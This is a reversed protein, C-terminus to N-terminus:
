YSLDGPLTNQFSAFLTLLTLFEFYLIILKRTQVTPPILIYFIYVYLSLSLVCKTSQLHSLYEAFKQLVAHQTKLNDCRECMTRDKRIQQRPAVTVGLFCLLVKIRIKHGNTSIYSSLYLIFKYQKFLTFLHLFNFLTFDCRKKLAFLFKLEIFHVGNQIRTNSANM